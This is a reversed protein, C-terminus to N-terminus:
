VRRISSVAGCAECKLFYLRGQKVIKTDPKNCEPCLVYMKTYKEVKRNVQEETFKGQFEAKEGRIVGATALERCLFQLLHEEDRNLREAIEKFNLVVTKSGFVLCRARPMEFREGSSTVVPVQERVRKLMKLYADVNSPLMDGRVGEEDM